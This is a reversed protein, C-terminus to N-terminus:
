MDVIRRVRPVEVAPPASMWTRPLVRARPTTVFPEAPALPAVRPLMIAGDGDGFSFAFGGRNKWVDAARGVKVTVTRVAGNQWVRLAVDDGPKRKELERTFRRARAGAFEPDEVDDRSVRLDVDGIAAIRAGEV